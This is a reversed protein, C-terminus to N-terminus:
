RAWTKALSELIEHNKEADNTAYAQRCVFRCGAQGHPLNILRGRVGNQPAAKEHTAPADASPEESAADDAAPAVPREARKM